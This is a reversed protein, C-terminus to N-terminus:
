FARVDDWLMPRKGLKQLISAIQDVFWIYANDGHREENGPFNKQLWAHIRPSSQWCDLHSFHGAPDLVQPVISVVASYLTAPVRRGASSTLLTTKLRTSCRMQARTFYPTRFCPRWSLSSRRSYLSCTPIPRTLRSAHRAPAVILADARTPQTGCLQSTHACSQCVSAGRHPIHLFTSRPVARLLVILLRVSDLGSCRRKCIYACVVRIGRLRAAEVIQRVDSTSYKEQASWAGKALEPVSDLVLPFSERDVIHWHLVSLKSYSMADLTRLISAVPLWHRSTDIMLGRWKFRPYDHIVLPVGSITYSGDEFDYVVMQSLTELARYAGVTTNAAISAAGAEPVNLTYSEDTHLQPMKVVQKCAINVRNLVAHQNNTSSNREDHAYILHQYRAIAAQLETSDGETVTFMLQSALPRLGGNDSSSVSAPLPFLELASAPPCLLLGAAVSLASLLSTCDLLSTM